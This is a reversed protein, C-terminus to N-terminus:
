AVRLANFGGGAGNAAADQGLGDIDRVAIFDFSEDLGREISNPRMSMQTVLAPSGGELGKAAASARGTILSRRQFRNGVM